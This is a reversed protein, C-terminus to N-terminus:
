KLEGYIISAIRYRLPALHYQLETRQPSTLFKSDPYTRSCRPIGLILVFSNRLEFLVLQNKKAEYIDNYTIM